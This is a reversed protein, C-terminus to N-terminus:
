LDDDEYSHRIVLRLVNTAQVRGLLAISSGHLACYGQGYNPKEVIFATQITKRAISSNKGDSLRILSVIVSKEM